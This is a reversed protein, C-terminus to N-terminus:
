KKLLEEMFKSTSFIENDTHYVNIMVGQSKYEMKFTPKAKVTEAANIAVQHNISVYGSVHDICIYGVSFIVSQDSKGKTYHDAYVMQGSLLYDKKLDQEKM